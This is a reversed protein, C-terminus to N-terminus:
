FKQKKTRNTINTKEFIKKTIQFKELKNTKRSHTAKRWEGEREKLLSNKVLYLPREFHPTSEHLLPFFHRKEATETDQTFLMRKVAPQIEQHFPDHKNRLQDKHLQMKKLSGLVAWM